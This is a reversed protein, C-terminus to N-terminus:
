HWTAM